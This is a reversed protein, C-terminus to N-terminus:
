GRIDSLYECYPKYWPEGQEILVAGNYHLQNISVALKGGPAPLSSIRISDEKSCDILGAETLSNVDAIYWADPPIDTFVTIESSVKAFVPLNSILVTFTLFILFYNTEYAFM